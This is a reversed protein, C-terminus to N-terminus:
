KLAANTATAPADFSAGALFANQDFVVSSSPDATSAATAVPSPQQVLTPVLSQQQVLSDVPPNASNAAVPVAPSATAHVTSAMAPASATSLQRIISSLDFASGLTGTPGAASAPGVGADNLDKETAGDTTGTANQFGDLSDLLGGLTKLEQPDLTESPQASAITSSPPAAVVPAQITPSALLVPSAANALSPNGPVAQPFPAAHVLDVACLVAFAAALLKLARLALM